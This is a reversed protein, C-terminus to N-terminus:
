GVRPTSESSGQSMAALTQDRRNPINMIGSLFVTFGLQVGIAVSTLSIILVRLVIPYELLGFDVSAWIVLSWALGVMGLGILSVAVILGREFTLLLLFRSNRKARPLLQYKVAFRQAILGFT